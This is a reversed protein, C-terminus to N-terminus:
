TFADRAGVRRGARRVAPPSAADLRPLSASQLSRQVDVEMLLGVGARQRASDMPSSPISREISQRGAAAGRSHIVLAAVFVGFLLALFNNTQDPASSIHLFYALQVGMQAIALVALLVPVAPAYVFSTTAAWFSAL